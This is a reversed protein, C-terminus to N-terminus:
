DEARAADLGRLLEGRSESPEDANYDGIVAGRVRRPGTQVDTRFQGGGSASADAAAQTKREILTRTGPEKLLRAINRRNPTFRFDAM